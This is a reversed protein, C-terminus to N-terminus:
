VKLKKRQNAREYAIQEQVMTGFCQLLEHHEGQPHTKLKDIIFHITEITSYCDRHPQQRILFQSARDPKFMVQPLKQLKHSLKYIKKAMSWTADLIIFVDHAPNFVEMNDCFDALDLATPGPFLLFCRKTPDSLIENLGAHEDFNYATFLRANEIHLFAMRGTNIAKRAEKPHLLIVFQPM